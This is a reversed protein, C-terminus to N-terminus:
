SSSEVLADSRGLLHSDKPPLLGRQTRWQNAQEQTWGAPWAVDLGNMLIKPETYRHCSCFIDIYAVDPGDCPPAMGSELCGTEHADVDPHQFQGVM